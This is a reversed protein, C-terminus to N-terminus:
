DQFCTVLPKSIQVLIHYVRHNLNKVDYFRIQMAEGWKPAPLKRKNRFSGNTVYRENADEELVAAVDDNYVDQEVQLSERDLVLEGNVMILKAAASKAPRKEVSSQLPPKPASIADKLASKNTKRENRRMEEKTSLKGQPFKHLVLEYVTANEVELNGKRDFPRKEVIPKEPSAPRVIAIPTKIIVAGEPKQTTPIQIEPPPATAAESHIEQEITEPEQASVSDPIPAASPAVVAKKVLEAPKRRIANKIKPKFVTSTKDVKSSTFELM